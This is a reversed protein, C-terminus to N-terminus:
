FSNQPNEQNERKHFINVRFKEIKKRWSIKKDWKTKEYKQEVGTCQFSHYTWPLSFFTSRIFTILTKWSIVDCLNLLKHWIHFIKISYLIEIGRYRNMVWVFRFFGNKRVFFYKKSKEEGNAKYAFFFFLTKKM